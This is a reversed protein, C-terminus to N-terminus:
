FAFVKEKTLFTIIDGSQLPHNLSVLQGPFKASPGWIQASKINDAIEGHVKQAATLVTAGNRLILPTKLDPEGGQPKLFVPFLKLSEFIKERLTDLGIEKDASILFLDNDSPERKLLDVKNLITFSPLYVRNGLFSDILRELTINEKIIIEVNGLRFEHAVEKITEQSLKAGSIITLGGKLQKNIIVKPPTDDLRLGAERLEEYIQPLTPYTKPDVIIILLDASRAVSLIERGRGKGKAAGGIIGPLDFIQIKAGKYDMMGPIVDLTTFEYAAVKSQANTLKNLLTSKGVSPPGVFVVTADGSKRVAFGGGGGSGKSKKEQIEDKIRAIRARLKGIHHETGKHYATERIEKEIAAIREEPTEVIGM